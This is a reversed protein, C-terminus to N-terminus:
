PRRRTAGGASRVASRRGIMVSTRAKPADDSRSITTPSFWRPTGAARPPGHDAAGDRPLLCARYTGRRQYGFRTPMPVVVGLHGRHASMVRLREVSLPVVGVAGRRLWDSCKLGSPGKTNSRVIGNAPTEPRISWM